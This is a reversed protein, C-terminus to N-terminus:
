TSFWLLILLALGFSGLAKLGLAALLGRSLWVQGQKFLSATTMQAVPGTTQQPLTLDTNWFLHLCDSSKGSGLIRCGWLVSTPLWLMWWSKFFFFFFFSFLVCSWSFCFFCRLSYTLQPRTVLVRSKGGLTAAVPHKWVVQHILRWFCFLRWSLGHVPGPVGLVELFLM